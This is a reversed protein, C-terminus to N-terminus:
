GTLGKYIFIFISLPLLPWLIVTAVALSFSIVMLIAAALLVMLRVISGIIRSILNDLAARVKADFSHGPPSVIRRWPAFLTRLLIPMSFHRQVNSPWDIINRLASIWGAAYWWRLLEFLM